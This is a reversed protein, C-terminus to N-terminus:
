LKLSCKDVMAKKSRRLNRPPLPSPPDKERKICREEVRHMHEEMMDIM